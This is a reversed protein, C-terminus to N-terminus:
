VIEESTLLFVTLSISLTTKYIFLYMLKSILVSIEHGTVHSLSDYSEM